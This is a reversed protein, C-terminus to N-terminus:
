NLYKSKQLLLLPYFSNLRIPRSLLFITNAGALETQLVFYDNSICAKEKPDFIPRENEVITPISSSNERGCVRM